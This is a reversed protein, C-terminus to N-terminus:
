LFYEDLSTEFDSNDDTSEQNFVGLLYDMCEIQDETSLKVIKESPLKIVTVVVLLVIVVTAIAFAPKPIYLLSKIGGILNAFPNTREQPQEEKKIQNRIKDWTTAPPRLRETNNFPTVTTARAMREYEKCDACSTLHKEINVKLEEKAQGDLYDTLILEQIKECKM